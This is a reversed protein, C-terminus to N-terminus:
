REQSHHQGSRNARLVSNFCYARSPTAVRDLNVDWHTVPLSCTALQQDHALGLLVPKRVGRQRFEFARDYFGKGMGLRRGNLDFAVLPVLVLDLQWPKIRDASLAPEDIGWRNRVVRQGRQYRVFVMHHPRWPHIVPVYCTKGDRWAMELVPRTGIESRSSLYLAISRAQQYVALKALQRCLAAAAKKQQYFSLRQREQLAQQRIQRRTNHSHQDSKFLPSSSTMPM